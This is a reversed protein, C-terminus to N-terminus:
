RVGGDARFILIQNNAPMAVRREIEFGKSTAVAAVEDLDRVGWSPDRVQLSRDFRVNSEAFVEGAVRFPGYLVLPAGPALLAQAGEFLGLTCAWPSIHVMNANFLADARDIPWPHETVDLRIPERFSEADAGERWAAISALCDEQLDTPQWRVNPLAASFHAAHMGTGSAIELVDGEFGQVTALMAAIPERNRECADSYLRTM